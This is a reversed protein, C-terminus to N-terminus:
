PRRGLSSSSRQPLLQEGGRQQEGTPRSQAAALARPAPGKSGVPVQQRLCPAAPPHTAPAVPAARLGETPAGREGEAPEEEAWLFEGQAPARPSKATGPVPLAGSRPAIRLPSRGGSRSGGAYKRCTGGAQLNPEGRPKKPLCSLSQAWSLM